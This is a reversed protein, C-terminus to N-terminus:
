GTRAALSVVLAVSVLDRELTALTEVTVRDLPASARFQDVQEHLDAIFAMLSGYPEPLDDVPVPM